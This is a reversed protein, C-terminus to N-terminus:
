FELVSAWSLGAFVICERYEEVGLITILAMPPPVTSGSKFLALSFCAAPLSSLSSFPEPADRTADESRTEKWMTELISAETLELLAYWFCRAPTM